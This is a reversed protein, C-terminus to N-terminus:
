RSTCSCSSRGTTGAHLELDRQVWEFQEDFPAGGNNEIVVFHRNGYDFSYWEPGVYRRYNDIRAAYTAAGGFFYEHNGVASWVPRESRATGRRYAQFEADTADNTLDGSVQVFGLERSTSNIEEVQEPFNQHDRRPDVHPDAINAFSFNEARGDPERRLAFDAQARAGDALQGLDRYFRPIMAEDTAVSWGAPKSIFVLDTIRREVDTELSYRGDGDTQVLTVGDSVTVDRLGREGADREGNGNRDDYVVGTVTADSPDVAEAIVPSLAKAVVLAALAAATAVLAWRWRSSRVAIALGDATGM